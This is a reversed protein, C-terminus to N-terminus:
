DGTSSFCFVVSNFTQNFPSLVSTVASIFKFHKPWYVKHRFSEMTSVRPSVNDSLQGNNEQPIGGDMVSEEMASLELEASKGRLRGPPSSLPLALESCLCSISVEHTGV